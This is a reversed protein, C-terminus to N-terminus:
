SRTLLLFLYGCVLIMFMCKSLLTFLIISFGYTNKVGAQQILVHGFDIGQEIISAFFGIFGTKDVKTYPSVAEAAEEAATIFTGVPQLAHLKTHGIFEAAVFLSNMHDNINEIANLSIRNRTLSGPGLNISLSHDTM